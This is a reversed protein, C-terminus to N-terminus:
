FPAPPQPSLCAANDPRTSITLEGKRSSNSECLIETELTNLSYNFALM